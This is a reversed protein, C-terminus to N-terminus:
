RDTVYNVMLVGTTTPAVDVLRPRRPPDLSRFLRKDVLALAGM